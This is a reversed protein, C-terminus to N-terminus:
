HNDANLNFLAPAQEEIWSIQRRDLHNGQSAKFLELQNADKRPSSM